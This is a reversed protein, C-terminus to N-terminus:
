SEMKYIGNISLVEMVGWVPEKKNFIHEHFCYKTSFM